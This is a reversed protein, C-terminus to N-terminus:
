ASQSKEVSPVLAEAARIAKEHLEWSRIAKRCGDRALDTSMRREAEDFIAEADMRAAHAKDDMERIAKLAQLIQPDAQSSSTQEQHRKGGNALMQRYAAKLEEGWQSKAKKNLRDLAANADDATQRVNSKEWLWKFASWDMAETMVAKANKVAALKNM